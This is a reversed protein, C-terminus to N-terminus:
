ISLKDNRLSDVYKYNVIEFKMLNVIQHFKVYFVTAIQNKQVYTWHASQKNPGIIFPSDSNTSLVYKPSPGPGCFKILKIYTIFELNKFKGM